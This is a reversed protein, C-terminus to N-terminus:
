FSAAAAYAVASVGTSAEHKRALRRCKEADFSTMAVM